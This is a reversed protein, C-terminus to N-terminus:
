KGSDWLNIKLTTDFISKWDRQNSESRRRLGSSHLNLANSPYLPPRPIHAFDPLSFCVFSSAPLPPRRAEDEKRIAVANAYVTTTERAEIFGHVNMQAGETRIQVNASRARPSPAPSAIRTLGEALRIFTAFPHSNRRRTSFRNEIEHSRDVGDLNPDVETGRCAVRRNLLSWILRPHFSFLFFFVPSLPLSLFSTKPLVAM